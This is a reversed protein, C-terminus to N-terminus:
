AAPAPSEAPSTDLPPAPPPVVPAPEGAVPKLMAAHFAGVNQRMRFVLPEMAGAGPVAAAVYAAFTVLDNLVSTLLEENM